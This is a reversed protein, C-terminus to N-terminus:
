EGSFFGWNIWEDRSTSVPCASDVDRVPWFGIDNRGFDTRVFPTCVNVHCVPQPSNVAYRISRSLKKSDHYTRAYRAFNWKMYLHPHISYPAMLDESVVTGGFDVQPLYVRCRVTRVKIHFKDSSEGREFVDSITVSVLMALPGGAVYWNSRSRSAFVLSYSLAPRGPWWVASASASYDLGLM